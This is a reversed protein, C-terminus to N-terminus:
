FHGGDITGAVISGSFSHTDDASNGFQTDGESFLVSSTVTRVHFENAVIDGSASINGDVIFDGGGGTHTTSLSPIIVKGDPKLHFGSSSIELKDHSGSVFASDAGLFFKPTKIDLGRRSGTTAFTFYSASDYVLEFGVGAHDYDSTSQKLVSGSYMIFGSNTHTRNAGSAADTFGTYGVSRIYGSGEGSAQIGKGVENSIYLSGTLLNSDGGIVTNGGQFFVPYVFARMAAETGQYDFFRFRFSYPTNPLPTPTIHKFMRHFNPTFGTEALSKISISGIHWTGRRVVFTPHIWGDVQTTFILNISRLSQSVEAEVTGIKTGFFKTVINPLDSADSLSEESLQYATNRYDIQAPTSTPWAGSASVTGLQNSPRSNHYIYFEFRPLPINPDTSIPEDVATMQARLVYSTNAAVRFQNESFTIKPAFYGFRVNESFQSPPQVRMSNIVMSPDFLFTPTNENVPFFDYNPDTETLANPVDDETEFFGLRKFVPSLGLAEQEIPDVYTDFSGSDVLIEYQELISDGADIFDGFQGGPKYETKVKYVDGTDPDIDSLLIDAFSQTIPTLELAYPSMFSMTVDMGLHGYTTDRKLATVGANAQQTGFPVNLNNQALTTAMTMIPIDVEFAGGTIDEDNVPGGIMFVLAETSNIVNLIGFKYSGSLQLFGGNFNNYEATPPLTPPDGPGIPPQAASFNGAELFSSFPEGFIPGAWYHGANFGGALQSPFFPSIMYPHDDIGTPIPSFSTVNGSSTNPGHVGANFSAIENADTAQSTNGSDNIIVNGDDDVMLNDGATGGTLDTNSTSGDAFNFGGVQIQIGSGGPSIPNPMANIASANPGNWQSFPFTRRESNVLVNNQGLVLPNTITIQGGVMNSTFELNSGSTVVAKSFGPLNVPEISTVEGQPGVAQITQFWDTNELSLILAALAEGQTAADTYTGFLTEALAPDIGGLNEAFPVIRISSTPDAHVEVITNEINIPQLYPITRERMRVKPYYGDRYIIETSNLQTPAVSCARSWLVNPLNFYNENNINYSFPYTEGTQPNRRMRGGVFIRAAGPPTEPYVWISIVRTGDVEAYQVVEYYIPNDNFDLVEIHVKSNRVLSNANAKIKFLNKGATLVTPFDVINFFDDSFPNDDRIVVTQLERLGVYDVQRRLRGLHWTGAPM